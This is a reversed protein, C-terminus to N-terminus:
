RKLDDETAVKIGGWGDLPEERRATDLLEPLDEIGQIATRLCNQYDKYAAGCSTELEQKKEEIAKNRKEREKMGAPTDSPNSLPPAILTLYSKLWHNFCTDYHHKPANCAPSLSSAM